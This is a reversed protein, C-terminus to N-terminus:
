VYRDETQVGLADAIASIYKTDTVTAPLNWQKECGKISRLKDYQDETVMWFLFKM